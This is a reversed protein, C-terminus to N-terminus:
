SFYLIIEDARYWPVGIPIEIAGLSALVTIRHRGDFFSFEPMKCADQFELMPAQLPGGERVLSKLSELKEINPYGYAHHPKALEAMLKASSIRIIAWAEKRSGFDVRAFSDPIGLRVKAPFGPVSLFISLPDCIM